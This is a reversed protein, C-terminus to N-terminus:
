YRNATLEDRSNLLFVFYFCECKNVYKSDCLQLTKIERVTSLSIEGYKTRLSVKKIAVQRNTLLDRAKFVLGHVGEGIKQIIKYRSTTYEVM